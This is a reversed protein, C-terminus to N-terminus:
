RRERLIIASLPEGSIRIPHFDNASPQPDAHKEDAGSTRPAATAEPELEADHHEQKM